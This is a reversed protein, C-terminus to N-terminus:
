VGGGGFVTDKAQGGRGDYSDNGLGLQIDGTILGSNRVTDNSSGTLVGGLISGGNEVLASGDIEVAFKNSPIGTNTSQITGTNFVRGARIIDVAHDLYSQILGSNILDGSGIYVGRGGIITGDNLVTANNGPCYLTVFAFAGTNIDQVVGTSGITVMSFDGQLSIATGDSSVAMGYVAVSQDNALGSIATGGVGTSVVKGTDTVLLANGSTNGLDVVTGTATLTNSVVTLMPNFDEPGFISGFGSGMM